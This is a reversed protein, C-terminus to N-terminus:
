EPDTLKAIKAKLNTFEAMMRPLRRLSKYMEVHTEMKVAPYGLVVRGAPVNSLIGTGGGAIVNDGIFINDSVGTQGGLVVNNGIRTSGAVGVHACLLSNTGIEVNHGIHVLNDIKTGNGIRTARITGRDITTNAGIEVDDGIDVGGLSNIRTWAQANIDGQDGLSDRAREVGSQEPTVYSFGDSGVIAGPQVILRDGAIVRASIRAGNRLECHSGLVVDAGVYCQPGIVSHAGIRAHAGIIALAGVSVGDGLIATDDIVASPHIGTDYGPGKDMLRSLGSLAYRTRRPIIAAELGLARWDAGDWLIAARAHGDGLTAAFKENMAIALDNVGADGPEAVSTVCLDVAGFAEAGLATAIEKVTYNM